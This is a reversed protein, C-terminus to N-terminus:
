WGASLCVYVNEDCVCVCVCVSELGVDLFGRWWFTAGLWTPAWGLGCM